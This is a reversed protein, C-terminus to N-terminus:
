FTIQWRSLEFDEDLSIFSNDSSFVIQALENQNPLSSSCRTQLEDSELVAISGHDSGVALFKDSPAYAGAFVSELPGFPEAIYVNDDGSKEVNLSFIVDAIALMTSNNSMFMALPTIWEVPFQVAGITADFCTAFENADSNVALMSGDGWFFLTQDPSGKDDPMAIDLDITRILVGNMVDHISISKACIDKVAIHSNNQDFAVASIPCAGVIQWSHKQKTILNYFRLERSNEKPVYALLGDSAIAFKSRQSGERNDTDFSNLLWTETSIIDIRGSTAIEPDTTTNDFVVFRDDASFSANIYKPGAMSVMELKFFEPDNLDWLRAFGDKDIQAFWKGRPSLKAISTNWQDFNGIVIDKRTLACSPEDDAHACLAYCLFCLVLKLLAKHMM